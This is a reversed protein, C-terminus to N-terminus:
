SICHYEQASAIFFKGNKSDFLYSTEPPYEAFYKKLNHVLQIHSNVYQLKKKNQNLIHNGFTHWFSVGFADLTSLAFAEHEHINGGYLQEIVKIIFNKEFGVFLTFPKDEKTYHVEHVIMNTLDITEYRNKTLTAEIDLNLVMKFLTNIEKAFQEENLTLVQPQVLYGKGVIALDMTTIHELIWGIEQSMFEIVDEKSCQNKNIIDDCSKLRKELFEDHALKHENYDKYGIKRMYEEEALAHRQWYSKLYKRGECMFFMRRNCDNMGGDQLRDMMRQVIRFLQQHERDFEEIGMCYREDWKIKM